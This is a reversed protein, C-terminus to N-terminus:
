RRGPDAAGAHALLFEEVLAAVRDPQDLTSLHGAGPLVASRAGPAAAVAADLEPQLVLPDESGRVWLTPVSLRHLAPLFDTRMAFPGFSLSQWDDLAPERHRAKQEAERQALEVAREFGPTDAGHQLNDALSRRVARPSRALWATTARLLGPTRTSLWTVLQAPRRAGLGGPALLVAASVRDPHDLATGISVGGGMSLGVLAAREIGLQDLLGIVVRQLLPQDVPGSWPRSGGHRPLDIALVRFREALAPAVHMWDLEATDLMAGHLLLVPPADSRGSTCLRVPGGAVTLDRVDDFTTTTTTM